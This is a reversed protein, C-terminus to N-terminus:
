MSLDNYQGSSCFYCLVTEELTNSLNLDAGHKFLVNFINEFFNIDSKKCCEYKKVLYFMASKGDADM